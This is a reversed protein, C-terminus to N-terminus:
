RIQDLALNLIKMVTEDNNCHAKIVRKIDSDDKIGFHRCTKVVALLHKVKDRMTPLSKFHTYNM